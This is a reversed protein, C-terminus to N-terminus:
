PKFLMGKKWLVVLVAAIVGGAVAPWVFWYKVYWPKSVEGKLTYVVTTVGMSVIKMYIMVGDSKRVKEEWSNESGTTPETFSLKYHIVGDEEKLEAVGNLSDAEKQLIQEVKEWYADDVPYFIRFFIMGREGMNLEVTETKKGAAAYITKECVAYEYKITINYMTDEAVKIEKVTYVERYSILPGTQGGPAVLYEVAYGVGVGLRYAEEQLVTAPLSSMLLGVLPLIYLVARNDLFGM